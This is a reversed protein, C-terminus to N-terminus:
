INSESADDMFSVELDVDMAEEAESVAEL